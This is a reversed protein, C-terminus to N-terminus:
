HSAVEDQAHAAAAHGEARLLAERLAANMWAKNVAYAAPSAAGLHAARAMAWADLAADPQVADALGAALAAEAGVPENAQVLRQAMRRGGRAAIIAAGIPSPLGFGIEPMALSAGTEMAVEDALLALMAGGGVAKGRVVAVLPKPCDLVALLTRMLLARRLPRAGAGLDERLDAGACFVRGGAGALLLARVAADSAAAALAAVLAAHLASDLANAAQPRDLTLRRTGDPLDETRLSM